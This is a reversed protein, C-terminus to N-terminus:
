KRDNGAVDPPDGSLLVRDIRDLLAASTEPHVKRTFLAGSKQIEDFDTLEVVAPFQNRRRDWFICRLCDNELPVAKLQMVLTQFFIEDVAFCHRFLRIYSPNQEVYELVKKATERSFNWWQPGGYFVLNPPL